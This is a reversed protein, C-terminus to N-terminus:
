GLHQAQQVPNAPFFVVLILVMAFTLFVVKLRRRLELIHEAFKFGESSM